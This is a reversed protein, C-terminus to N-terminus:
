VVESISYCNLHWLEPLEAAAPLETRFTRSIRNQVIDPQNIIIGGMNIDAYISQM